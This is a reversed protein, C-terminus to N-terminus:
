QYLFSDAPLEGTLDTERDHIGWTVKGALHSPAVFSVLTPSVSLIQVNVVAGDRTVQLYRQGLADRADRFNTGGLTIAYGGTTSGLFPTVSTLSPPPVLRFAGYMGGRGIPCTATEADDDVDVAQADLVARLGTSELRVIRLESTTVPFADRDFPVTIAVLRDFEVREPGVYIGPGVPLLGQGAPGTFPDGIGLQIPRLRSVANPPLSLAPGGTGPTAGGGADVLITSEIDVGVPPPELEDDTVNVDRRGSITKVKLTVDTPGGQGGGDRVILRHDGTQVIDATVAHTKQPDTPFTFTKVITTSGGSIRLLQFVVPLSASKKRARAKVDIESGSEAAFDLEQLGTSTDINKFRVRRPLKWDIAISYDGERFGDGRLEVAYAGSEPAEFGRVTARRNSNKVAAGSVDRSFRDLLRLQVHPADPRPRTKRGKATVKLAAGRPLEFRFTEVEGLPDITGVIRDGNRVTVDLDALSPHVGAASALLLFSLLWRM